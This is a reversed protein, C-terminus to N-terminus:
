SQVARPLRLIFRSGKGPESEVGVSGGQREALEKCILLGLGSGKEGDTGRSSQVNNTFLTKQKEPPIGTGTDIVDIEQFEGEQRLEVRITGGPPTFKIANSVFNRVITQTMEMDAFVFAEVTPPEILRISKQEAGHSLQEFVDQILPPLPFSVPKAASQKSASVWSLINELISETNQAAKHLEQLYEQIVEKPFSDLDKLMVETLGLFGSIPNRLDHGLIGILRTKWSNIEELERNRQELTRRAQLLNLHLKVRAAIVASEVPKEIYDVAGAKFGELMSETGKKEATIFIIPIHSLGELSCLRKCTEYGDMGPMSVDLLILDPPAAAASEIASPGSQALRIAYGEKRLFSGIIKLNDPNDDVILISPAQDDMM